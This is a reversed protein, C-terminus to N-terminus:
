ARRSLPARRSDNELLCSDSVTQKRAVEEVNEMPGGGAFLPQRLSSSTCRRRQSTRLSLCARQPTDLGRSSGM